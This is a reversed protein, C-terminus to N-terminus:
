TCWWTWVSKGSLKKTGSSSAGGCGYATYQYTGKVVNITQKGTGLTFRYSGPGTLVLTISGGTNNQIVVNVTGGAKNQQKCVALVLTHNNKKVEVTGKKETGGCAKYSYKYKGPVVSFTQKGAQINWNYTAPGKMVLNFKEGTKNNVILQLTGTQTQLTPDSASSAEASAPGWGSLLMALIILPIVIKIKM